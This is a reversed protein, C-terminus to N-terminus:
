SLISFAAALHGKKKLNYPPSEMSCSIPNVAKRKNSKGGSREHYTFINRFPNRGNQLSQVVSFFFYECFLKRLTMLIFM